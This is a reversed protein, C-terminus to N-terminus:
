MCDIRLSSISHRKGNVRDCYDITRRPQILEELGDSVIQITQLCHM